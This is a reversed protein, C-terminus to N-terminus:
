ADQTCYAGSYGNFIDADWDSYTLMSINLTQEFWGLHKTMIVTDWLKVIYSNPKTPGDVTLLDAALVRTTLLGMISYLAHFIM